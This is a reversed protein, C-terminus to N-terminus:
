EHGKCAAQMLPTGGTPGMCNVSCGVAILAEVVLLDGESCAGLLLGKKEQKLLPNLLQVLETHTPEGASCIAKLITYAFPIDGKRCACCLLNHQEERSLIGVSCGNKLLTDVALLDGVHCAHHFLDDKEERSLEECSAGARLLSLSIAGNGRALKLPSRGWFVEDVRSGRDILAQVVEESQHECALHLATRGFREKAHVDAGAALLALVIDKRASRGQEGQQAMYDCAKHLATHRFLGEANVDAGAALLALVIDKHSRIVALHLLTDVDCRGNVSAGSQILEQVRDLDGSFM